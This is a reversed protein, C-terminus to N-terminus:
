RELKADYGFTPSPTTAPAPVEKGSAVCEAWAAILAPRDMKDLDAEPFGAKSLKVILRATGM